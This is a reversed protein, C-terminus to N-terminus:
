HSYIFAVGEIINGSLKKTCEACSADLKFTGFVVHFVFGQDIHMYLLYSFMCLLLARDKWVSRDENCQRFADLMRMIVV